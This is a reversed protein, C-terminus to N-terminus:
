PPTLARLPPEPYGVARYLTPSAKAILWEGDSRDLYTVDEEVSPEPRDSFVHTVTATVRARDQDVSVATVEHIRTRQWVPTGGGRRHGISASLAPGCDPQPRPLEIQALAGPALLDCVAEGDSANVAAVYARFAAEVAARDDESLDGGAAPPAPEAEPAAETAAPSELPATAETTTTTPEDDGCGAAVAALVIALAARTRARPTV